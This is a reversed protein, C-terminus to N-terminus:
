GRSAACDYLLLSTHGDIIQWPPRLPSLSTRRKPIPDLNVLVGMGFYTYAMMIQVLITDTVTSTHNGGTLAGRANLFNAIVTTTAHVHYLCIRRPKVQDPVSPMANIVNTIVLALAKAQSEANNSKASDENLKAMVWLLAVLAKSLVGVTTEGEDLVPVVAVEIGSPQVTQFSSNNNERKSKAHKSFIGFWTRLRHIRTVSLKIKGVFQPVLFAKLPTQLRPGTFLRDWRTSLLTQSIGAGEGSGEENPPKRKTSKASTGKGVCPVDGLAIGLSKVGAGNLKTPGGCKQAADLDLGDPPRSEEKFEVPNEGMLIVAQKWPQQKSGSRINLLKVEWEKGAKSEAYLVRQSSGGDKYYFEMGEYDM